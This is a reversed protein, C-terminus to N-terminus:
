ATKAPRRRLLAGLGLLGVGLGALSSPEPVEIVSIDDIDWYGADNQFQFALVNTGGGTATVTFTYLTYGFAAVASDTMLTAGNWIAAFYNTYGTTLSTDQMLEFSVTFTANSTLDLNQSLTLSDSATHVGLTAGQNGFYAEYSGSAPSLGDVGYLNSQTTVATGSLTWDTFDGTEFGCNQVQNQLNADCLSTGALAQTSFATAAVLGLALTLKMLRFEPLASRTASRIAQGLTLSRHM